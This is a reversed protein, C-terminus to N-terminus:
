KDDPPPLDRRFLPTHRYPIELALLALGTVTVRGGEKGKADAKPDWSGKADQTKVLHAALGENWTKADDGGVHNLVLTALYAYACNKASSPPAAKLRSVGAALGPNRPSWGLYQRCLLGSATAETAPDTPKTKPADKAGYDGKDPSAVADLWKDVLKLSTAPVNLGALQGSKLAQLQWATTLTDPEAKPSERWGGTKADQDKVISDLALQAPGKLNPDATLGYAECLAMTALGQAYQGAQFNGDKGQQSVLFKLAAEVTKSYDASKNDGSNKHTNGAALFPLVGLATGAVDNKVGQGSSKDDTAKEFPDTLKERSYKNFSDLKWSGDPAQHLALWKLGLAVAAEVKPDADAAASPGALVLLVGLAPLAWRKTTM